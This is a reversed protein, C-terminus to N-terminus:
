TMCQSVWSDGTAISCLIPVENAKETVAMAAAAVAPGPGKTTGRAKVPHIRGLARSTQVTSAAQHSTRTDLAPIAAQTATRLHNMRALLPARVRTTVPAPGEQALRATSVRAEMSLSQHIDVPATRTAAGLRPGEPIHAVAPSLTLQGPGLTLRAPPAGTTRHCRVRSLSPLRVTPATSVAPLVRHRDRNRATTPTQRRLSPARPRRPRLAAVPNM